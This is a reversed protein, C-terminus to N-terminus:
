TNLQYSIIESNNSLNDCYKLLENKDHSGLVYVYRGDSKQHSLLTNSNLFNTLEVSSEIELTSISNGETFSTVFLPRRFVKKSVQDSLVLSLLALSISAVFLILWDISVSATIGLTISAFYVALEFPSKVPNRFRVISLAGVMGLSLAINGSIVKTIVFTIIPLVTLTATHAYTRVWSQGLSILVFRSAISIIILLSVVKLEELGKVLLIEM